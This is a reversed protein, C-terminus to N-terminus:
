SKHKGDIVHVATAKAALRVDDRGYLTITLGEFRVVIGDDPIPQDLEAPISPVTVVLEQYKREPLVCTVTYGDQENTRNGDVYKFKIRVATAIASNGCTAYADIVASKPNM